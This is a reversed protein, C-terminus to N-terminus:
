PVCYNYAWDSYPYFTEPGQQILIPEGCCTIESNLMVMSQNQVISELLEYFHQGGDERQPKLGYERPSGAVSVIANKFMFQAYVDEVLYEGDYLKKLMYRTMEVQRYDAEQISQWNGYAIVSLTSYRHESVISCTPLRVYKNAEASEDSLFDFSIEDRGPVYLETISRDPLFSKFAPNVFTSSM